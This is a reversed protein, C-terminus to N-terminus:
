EPTPPGLELYIGCATARTSLTQVSCRLGRHLSKAQTKVMLPKAIPKIEM